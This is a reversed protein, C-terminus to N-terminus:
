AASRAFGLYAPNVRVVRKGAWEAKYRIFGEIMAWGADLIEKRTAKSRKANDRATMAKTDLAELAIVDAMDVLARSIKHAIDKRIRALRASFKRVKAQADLLRRPRSIGKLSGGAPIGHAQRLAEEKRSVVAQLRALKEERAKTKVVLGFVHGLDTVCSGNRAVNRDVGVVRLTDPDATLVRHREAVGKPKVKREVCFSVFWMTGERSITANKVKGEIPRHLVMEVPGLKGSMGMKPMHFHRVQKRTGKANRIQFQEPQPLRFSPADSFRRWTPKDNQGKFFRDWGDYLDHITQQLPQSLAQKLFPHAAKWERIKKFMEFKSPAVGMAAYTAQHAELAKNYVFRCCGSIHLFMQEQAPTPYLRYRQALVTKM